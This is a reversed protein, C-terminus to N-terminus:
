IVSHATMCLMTGHEKCTAVQQVPSAETVHKGGVLDAAEQLM